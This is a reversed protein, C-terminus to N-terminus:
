ALTTVAQVTVIKLKCGSLNVTQDTPNFLEVWENYTGKAMIENLVVYTALIKQPSLLYTIYVASLIFILNIILRPTM